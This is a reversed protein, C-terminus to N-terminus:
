IQGKIEPRQRRSRKKIPQIQLQTDWCQKIQTATPQRYSIATVPQQCSLIATVSLPYVFINFLFNYWFKGDTVPAQFYGLGCLDEM